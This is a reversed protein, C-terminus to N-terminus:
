IFAGKWAERAAAESRSGNLAKTQSSAVASM